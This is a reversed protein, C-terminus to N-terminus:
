RLRITNPMARAVIIPRKGSAETREQLYLRDQTGVPMGSAVM